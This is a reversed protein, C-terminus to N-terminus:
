PAARPTPELGHASLLEPRPWNYRCSEVVAGGHTETTFVEANQAGLREYFRRASVNGALVLLHVGNDPYLSALWAGAQKM